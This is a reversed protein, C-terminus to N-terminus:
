RGAHRMVWREARREEKAEDYPERVVDGLREIANARLVNKTVCRFHTIM